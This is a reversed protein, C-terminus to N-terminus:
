QWRAHLHSMPAQVPASMSFPRAPHFRRSLRDSSRLTRGEVLRIALGLRTTFSSLLFGRAVLRACRQMKCFDRQRSLSAPSDDGRLWAYKSDACIGVIEFQEGGEKMRFSAGIPNQGAFEKQALARNMVAVGPSNPTDRVDFSRGDLIPVTGENLKLVQESVQEIRRAIGFGHQPGLAHLTRLIMLDLTGQLVESKEATV